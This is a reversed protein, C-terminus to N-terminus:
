RKAKINLALPIPQIQFLCSIKVNKAKLVAKIGDYDIPYGAIDVTIIAKTKPTIADYIKEEDM